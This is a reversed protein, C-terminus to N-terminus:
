NFCHSRNVMNLMLNNNSPNYLIKVNLREALSYQHCKGVRQGSFLFLLNTLPSQFNNEFGVQQYLNAVKGWKM